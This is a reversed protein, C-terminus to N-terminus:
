NAKDIEKGKPTSYLTNSEDQAIALVPDNSPAATTVNLQKDLAAGHARLHHHDRMMRKAFERVESSTGKTAAISGAASDAMTAEDLLAVIIPGTWTGSAAPAGANMPTDGTVTSSTTSSAAGTTDTGYNDKKSCGAVAIVAVALAVVKSRTGNILMTSKERGTEPTLFFRERSDLRGNTTKPLHAPLFRVCQWTKAIVNTRSRGPRPPRPALRQCGNRVIPFQMKLMDGLDFRTLDYSM